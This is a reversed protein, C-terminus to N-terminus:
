AKASAAKGRPMKVPTQCFDDPLPRFDKDVKLVACRGVAPAVGRLRVIRDLEARSVLWTNQRSSRSRVVLVSHIKLPKCWHERITAAKLRKIGRERLYLEADALTLLDTPVAPSSGAAHGNAHGNLAPHEPLIQSILARLEAVERLVHCLTDASSHAREDHLM